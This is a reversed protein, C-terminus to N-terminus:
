SMFAPAPFFVKLSLLLMQIFNIEIVNRSNPPSVIRNEGLIKEFKGDVSCYFLKM